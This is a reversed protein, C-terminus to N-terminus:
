FYEYFLIAVDVCTLGISTGSTQNTLPIDAGLIRSGKNWGHCLEIFILYILNHDHVM